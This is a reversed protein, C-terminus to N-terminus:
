GGKWGSQLCMFKGKVVLRLIGQTYTINWVKLIPQNSSTDFIPLLDTHSTSTYSHYCPRISWLSIFYQLFNLTYKPFLSLINGCYHCYIEVIIVIYKWLLAIYKWLLLLINGCYPCHIEVIISYINGCYHYYIKLIIVFYKWLLLLTNGCYHCYIEVIIAIYKWLLSLTNGCYHCYIEVIIVIYKWLLSLINGCYHFYM